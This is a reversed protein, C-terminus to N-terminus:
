ILGAIEWANYLGDMSEQQAKEIEWLEEESMICRCSGHEFGCADCMIPSEIYFDM